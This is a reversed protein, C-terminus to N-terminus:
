WMGYSGSENVMQWIWKGSVQVLGKREHTGVGGQKKEVESKREDM